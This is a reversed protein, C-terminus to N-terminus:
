IEARRIVFYNVINLFGTTIVLTAMAYLPNGSEFGFITLILKGCAAAARPFLYALIPFVVVILIPLGAAITIKLFKNSRYFLTAILYGASFCTLLLLFCLLLDITIQAGPFADAAFAPYFDMFHMYYIREDSFIRVAYVFITEIITMFISGLLIFSLTGLFITKRSVGNQCFLYFYERFMYLGAIFCFFSASFGTGNFSIDGSTTILVFSGGFLMIGLIILYYVLIARGVDIFQYQIVKKINM